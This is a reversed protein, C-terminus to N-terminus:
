SLTSSYRWKGLRWSTTSLFAGTVFNIKLMACGVALFLNILRETPGLRVSSLDLELDYKYPLCCLFWFWTRVLTSLRWLKTTQNKRSHHHSYNNVTSWFLSRMAIHRGCLTGAEATVVCVHSTGTPRFDLFLQWKTEHCRSHHTWWTPM